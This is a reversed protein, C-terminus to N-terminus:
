RVLPFTPPEGWPLQDETWPAPARRRGARPHLVQPEEGAAGPRVEACLCYYGCWLWVVVSADDGHDM